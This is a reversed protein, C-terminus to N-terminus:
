PKANSREKRWQDYSQKNQHKCAFYASADINKRKCERENHAQAAQALGADIEQPSTLRLPGCGAGLASLALASALLLAPRGPFRARWRKQRSTNM